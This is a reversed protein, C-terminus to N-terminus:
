KSAHSTVEAIQSILVKLKQRQEAMQDLRQQCIEALAALAEAETLFADYDCDRFVYDSKGFRIKEGASNVETARWGGGTRRTVKARVIYDGPVAFSPARMIPSPRAIFYLESPLPGNVDVM